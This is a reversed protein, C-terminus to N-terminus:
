FLIIQYHENRKYVRVLVYVCWGLSFTNYRFLPSITYYTDSFRLISQLGYVFMKWSSEILSLGVVAYFVALLQMIYGGRFLWRWPSMYRSISKGQLTQGYCLFNKTKTSKHPREQYERFVNRLLKAKWGHSSHTIISDDQILPRRVTNYPTPLMTMLNKFVNKMLFIRKSSCLTM